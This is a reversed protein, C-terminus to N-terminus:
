ILTQRLYYIFLYRGFFIIKKTLLAYLIVFNM